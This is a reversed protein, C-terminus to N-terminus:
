RASEEASCRSCDCDFLYQVRLIQRREAAPLALHEDTLYSLLLEEGEAVERSALVAVVDPDRAAPAPFQRVAVVNPACSHNLCSTVPFLARAHVTGRAVATAGQMARLLAEGERQEGHAMVAEAYTEWADTHTRHSFSNQQVASWLHKVNISWLGYGPAPEGFIGELMAGAMLCIPGRTDELNAAPFDARLRCPTMEGDASGCVEVREGSAAEAIPVTDQDAGLAALAARVEGRPGVRASGGGPDPQLAKSPLLLDFAVSLAERPPGQQPAPLPQQPPHEAAPEPAAPAPLQGPADAPAAVSAGSCGPAGLASMFLEAPGSRSYAGENILRSLLARDAAGEAGSAHLLERGQQLALDFAACLPALRAALAHLASCRAAAAAGLAVAAAAEEGVAPRRAPGIVVGILLELAERGSGRPITGPIVRCRHDRRLPVAPLPRASFLRFREWCAREAAAGARAAAALEACIRLVLAMAPKMTATGFYWDEECWRSLMQLNEPPLAGICIQAHWAQWAADRASESSFLATCGGPAGICPVRQPCCLAARPLLTEWLPEIIGEHLPPSGPQLMGGHVAPPASTFVVKVCRRWTFSGGSRRQWSVTDGGIERATAGGLQVGGGAPLKRLAAVWGPATVVGGASVTFCREDSGLWHGPRLLGGTDPTATHARWAAAIHAISAVPTNGVRSLRRGLCSRCSATDAPSGPAVGLLRLTVPCLRLGAAAFNGAATCPLLLDTGPAAPTRRGGAERACETPALLPRLTHLCSLSCGPLPVSAAARELLVVEGPRIRRAARLGKGRGPIVAPAVAPPGPTCLLEARAALPALCRPAPGQSLQQAGCSLRLTRGVYRDLAAAAAPSDPDVGCLLWEPAAFRLGPPRGKPCQVRVAEPAPDCLPFRQLLAVAEAPM